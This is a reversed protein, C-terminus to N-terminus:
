PQSEPLFDEPKGSANKPNLAQNVRSKMSPEAHRPEPVMRQGKSMATPGM